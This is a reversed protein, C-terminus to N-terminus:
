LVKRRRKKCEECRFGRAPRHELNPFMRKHCFHCTVERASGLDIESKTSDIKTECDFESISIKSAQEMERLEFDRLLEETNEILKLREEESLLRGTSASYKPVLKGSKGYLHQYCTSGLVKLVGEERVVHIRAYVTKTCDPGGCRVRRRPDVQLIALLEIMGVSQVAFM